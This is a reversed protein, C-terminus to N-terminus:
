NSQKLHCSFTGLARLNVNVLESPGVWLGLRWGGFKHCMLVYSDTIFQHYYKKYYLHTFFRASAQAHLFWMLLPMLSLLIPSLAFDMTDGRSQRASVSTTSVM